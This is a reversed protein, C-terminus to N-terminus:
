ERLNISKKFDIVEQPSFAADDRIKIEDFAIIIVIINTFFRFISFFLESCRRRAVRRTDAAWTFITRPYDIIINFLNTLNYIIYSLVLM